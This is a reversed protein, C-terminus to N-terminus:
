VSMMVAGVYAGFFLLLITIVIAMAVLLKSSFQEISLCPSPGVINAGDQLLSVINKDYLLRAVKPLMIFNIVIIIWALEPPIYEGFVGFFFALLVPVEALIMILCFLVTSIPKSDEGTDRIRDILVKRNNHYLKTSVIPIIFLSIPGIIYIIGIILYYEFWFM